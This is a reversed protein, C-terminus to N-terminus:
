KLTNLLFSYSKERFESLVKEVHNKDLENYSSKQIDSLNHILRSELGFLKLLSTFRGGGREKNLIAIFPKNFLISFVTGHFSDTVIFKADNFSRIWQYVSPYICNEIKANPYKEPMIEFPKLGTDQSVQHIIDQKEKSKDLVYVFLNGDSNKTENRELLTLYDEKSLLMTPDLLHVAEANLYQRCLNIASDERVSIADFQKILSKAIVTQKPKFEWQDSGFSAAYVIKKEKVSNKLFDLFYNSLTPAYRPRWVQDSGVIYAEFNNKKIKDQRLPFFLSETLDINDHIFLDTEKQIIATEKPTEWRPIVPTIDKRRFVFRLIIRKFVSTIKYKLSNNNKCNITFVEHGMKKLVAQLAYNQLIGGYNSHLPLTLIAIKM